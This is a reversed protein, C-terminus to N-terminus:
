KKVIGRVIFWLHMVVTSALGYHHRMVMFRETLSAKHSTASDGGALFDAAILHMNIRALNMKESERIVNICWDVDASHRYITNYMYKAAIDTRAFFAQHCVLMGQKFSKWTLNEPVQLRRHRLFCGNDDVIDTEGYIIGPLEEGDGVTAIQAVQTLIDASHFKDGANMFVIYNGTAMQLAKNMAYYLGNDPESISRVTHGNDTRSDLEEYAKVISMTDDQSAGDIILHEVHCYDQSAVSDITRQIFHEANYCVTAVTITIM